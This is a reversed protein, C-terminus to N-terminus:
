VVVEFSSVLVDSGGKHETVVVMCNWLQEKPGASM